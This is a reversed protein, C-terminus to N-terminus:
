LLGGFPVPALTALPDESIKEYEALVAQLKILSARLAAFRSPTLGDKSHVARRLINEMTRAVRATRKKAAFNSRRTYAVDDEPHLSMYRVKRKDFDAVCIQAITDLTRLQRARSKPTSAITKDFFIKPLDCSRPSKEGGTSTM